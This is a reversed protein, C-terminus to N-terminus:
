GLQTRRGVVHVVQQRWDQEAFRQLVDRLIGNEDLHRRMAQELGDQLLRHGTAGIDAEHLPVVLVVEGEPEGANSLSNM